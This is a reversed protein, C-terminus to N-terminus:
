FDKIENISKISLGTVKSIFDIDYHDIMKLIISKERKYYGDRYCMDYKLKRHEDLTLADECESTYENVKELSLGTVACVDFIDYNNNFMNNIIFRYEADKGENYYKEEM